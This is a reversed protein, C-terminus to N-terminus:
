FRQLIINLLTKKNPAMFKVRAVFKVKLSLKFFLCLYCFPKNKDLEIIQGDLDNKLSYLM